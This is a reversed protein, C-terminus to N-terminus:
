ELVLLWLVCVLDYLSRCISPLSVVQYIRPVQKIFRNIIYDDLYTAYTPVNIENEDCSLYSYLISVGM